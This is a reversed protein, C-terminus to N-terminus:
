KSDSKPATGSTEVIDPKKDVKVAPAKSETSESHSAKKRSDSPHDTVYWGSGRLIFSGLSIVRTAIRGCDPCPCTKEASFGQLKEFRSRCHPCEYEYVPM